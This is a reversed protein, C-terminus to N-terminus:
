RRCPTVALAGPRAGVPIDDPHKTRTKVDITSITGGGGNNIYVTPRCRARGAVATAGDPVVGVLGLVLALLVWRCCRM